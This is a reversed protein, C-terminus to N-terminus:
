GKAERGEELVVGGKLAIGKRSCQESGTGRTRGRARPRKKLRVDTRRRGWEQVGNRRGPM